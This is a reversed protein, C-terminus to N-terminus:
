RRQERFWAVTKELGDRLLVPERLGALARLRSGDLVSRMQEGEKAPGHRVPTRGIIRELERFLDNVSTEIGTGVNYAGTFDGEAAAINAAVVDDVSVFDRTQGGSGNITVEDGALMRAAFIAVVGAEGHADQRPGYVNAYRLAVCPLGRVHQFFHMYHEVALKACGYPSLPMRPHEESQPEDGIPEGYIAGGTSAFIFRKVKADAAAQLLRVSGVVNIDADEAPDAVSKRLDVQAAEHIVIDPRLATVLDATSRERIDAVHLEAAPNVNERMGTSLNDLISVRWGRTLLADAVHSGIFGAGGTIVAHRSV